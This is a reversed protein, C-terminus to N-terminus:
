YWGDEETAEIQRLMAERAGVAALHYGNIVPDAPAQELAARTTLVIGELAALRNLADGASPDGAQQGYRTLAELYAAEAERLRAEPDNAAATVNMPVPGVGPMAPPEGDLRAGTYTGGIFIAVAAAARLLWQRAPSFGVPHVLREEALRGSLASWGDAPATLTPLEQLSRTLESLDELEARCDACSELHDREIEDPEEDVLRALTEDNLHQM